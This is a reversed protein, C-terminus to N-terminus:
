VQLCVSNAFRGEAGVGNRVRTYQPVQCRAGLHARHEAAAEGKKERSQEPKGGAGQAV